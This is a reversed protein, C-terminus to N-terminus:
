EFGLVRDIANYIVDRFDEMDWDGDTEAANVTEAKVALLKERLDGLPKFGRRPDQYARHWLARNAFVAYKSMEIDDSDESARPAAKPKKQDRLDAFGGDEWQRQNLYVLPANIYDGDNKRWGKDYKKRNRTDAIITEAIAEYERECWKDWCGIRNKKRIYESFPAQGNDPWEGWWRLFAESFDPNRRKAM